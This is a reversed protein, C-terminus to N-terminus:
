DVNTINININYDLDNILSSVNTFINVLQTIYETNLTSIDKFTDLKLNNVCNCVWSPIELRVLEDHYINFENIIQMIKEKNEFEKNSLMNNFIQYLQYIEIPLPFKNKTKKCCSYDIFKVCNINNLTLQINTNGFELGTLELKSVQNTEIMLNNDKLDNHFLGNLNAHTIVYICQLFCSLIIKPNFSEIYKNLTVGNVKDM